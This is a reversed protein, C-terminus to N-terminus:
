KSVLSTGEEHDTLRCRLASVVRALEILVDATLPEAAPSEGRDTFHEPVTVTSGPTGGECVYM